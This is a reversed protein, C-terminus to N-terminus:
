KEMSITTYIKTKVAHKIKNGNIKVNVQFMLVQGITENINEKMKEKFVFEILFTKEKCLFTLPFAGSM